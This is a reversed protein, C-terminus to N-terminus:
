NINLQRFLHELLECSLGMVSDVTGDIHSIYPQLLPHEVMLGGACHVVQGESLIQEIVDAPINKFYITASDVGLVREGTAINSLAISGVTSCSRGNYMSIYKRAEDLDKPKELIKNNCTVVQDATLLIPSPNNQSYPIDDLRSLIANAKEIALLSVLERPNSSRDGFAKENINAKEIRYSFGERKLIDQRTQSSTGLILQIKAHISSFYSDKPLSNM